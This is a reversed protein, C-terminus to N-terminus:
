LRSTVPEVGAAGVYGWRVLLKATCEGELSGLMASLCGSAPASGTLKFGRSELHTRLSVLATDPDMSTRIVLNRWLRGADGSGRCGTTGRFVVDFGPPTHRCRCIASDVQCRQTAWYPPILGRIRLAEFFELDFVGAQLLQQGLRIRQTPSISM